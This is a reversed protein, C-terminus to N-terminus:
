PASRLALAVGPSARGGADDAVRGDALRVRWGVKIVLPAAAGGSCSWRLRGGQWPASDRCIMARGGPLAARVRQKFDYLDFSALAASDCRNGAYCLMAPPAPDPEALADYDLSLYPNAGDDQRMQAPNARMADAVGAALQMSQSLLASQHRTRLATLQMAAGGAIGLALVLVAVLVEVLTFGAAGCNRM